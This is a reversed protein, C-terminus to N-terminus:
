RTQNVLGNIYDRLSTPGREVNELKAVPEDVVTGTMCAYSQAAPRSFGFREFTEVWKERPIVDLEVSMALIESFADAVDRPRYHKPGEVYKLRTDEVPGILRTAAAEGLDRPAVMPIYVDAPLFSPLKGSDRIVDLMGGWNSLYYAGRNIAAPIPQANLAQEFEHLITLDGCREGPRAGYTSALVVKELGSGDLAAVIAALNTREEKDTDTSPAAPPNLIFARRGTRFVQRLGDSDRVDVVVIRAGVAKLDPAHDANRTIVTVPEGRNLLARATASGVQGTGGVIVHM